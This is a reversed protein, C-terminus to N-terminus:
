QSQLVWTAHRYQTTLSTYYQWTVVCLSIYPQPLRGASASSSKLLRVVYLQGSSRVWILEVERCFVLGYDYVIIAIFKFPLYSYGILSWFSPSNSTVTM